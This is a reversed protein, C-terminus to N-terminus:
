QQQQQLSTGRDTQGEQLVAIQQLSVATLVLLVLRRLVRAVLQQQLLLPSARRSSGL